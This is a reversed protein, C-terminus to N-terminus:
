LGLEFRWFPILERLPGAARLKNKRFKRRRRRRRRRRRILKNFHNSYQRIKRVKLIMIEFSGSVSILRLKQCDSSLVVSLLDSKDSGAV